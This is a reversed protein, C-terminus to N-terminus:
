LLEKPANNRIFDALGANIATSPTPNHGSWYNLADSKISARNLPKVWWGWGGGSMGIIGRANYGLHRSPIEIPVRSAIAQDRVSFLWDTRKDTKTLNKKM